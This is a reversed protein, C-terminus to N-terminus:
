KFTLMAYFPGKGAKRNRMKEKLRERPDVKIPEGNEDKVACEANSTLECPGGYLFCNRKECEMNQGPDCVFWRKKEEM